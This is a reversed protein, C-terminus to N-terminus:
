QTVPCPVPGAYIRARGTEMGEMSYYPNQTFTILTVPDPPTSGMATVTLERFCVSQGQGFGPVPTAPGPDTFEVFFDCDIPVPGFTGIGTGSVVAPCVTDGTLALWQPNFDSMRLRRCACQEQTVSGNSCQPVGYLSSCAPDPFNQMNQIFRDTNFGYIQDVAALTAMEQVYHTQVSLRLSGSTKVETSTASLAYVGISALVAMTMAVIFIVGGAERARRQSRIRVASGRTTPAPRM